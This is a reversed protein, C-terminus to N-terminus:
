DLYTDIYEQARENGLELSKKWDKEAKEVQGSYYFAVGRRLYYNSDSSDLKICKDLYPIAEKHRKGIILIDGALFYLSANDTENQIAIKINELGKDIKQEQRYVMARIRYLDSKTKDLREINKLTRLCEKNNYTYHFIEAKLVQIKYNNPFLYDAKLIETLANEMDFKDVYFNALAYHKFPDREDMKVAKQLYEIAKELNGCKREILALHYVDNKDIIESGSLLVNLSDCSLNNVLNYTEDFSYDLQAKSECGYFLSILISLTVLQRM